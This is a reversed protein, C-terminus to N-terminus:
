NPRPPGQAQFTAETDLVQRLLRGLPELFERFRREDEGSFAGGDRKNLVQAVAFVTGEGDRVPLCLLSRTRYGTRRDVSAQFLPSQYADALNVTEGTRAVHGAIGTDVGIEISLMSTGDAQAVRSRLKRAPWDVLFLTVRDAALTQGARFAAAVLVRDLLSTALHGRATDMTRRLQVLEETSEAMFQFLQADDLAAIERTLDRARSARALGELAGSAQLSAARALSVLRGDELALHRDAIDLIRHDHTVLLIACGGRRALRQLLDVVERGTVRDLASTPEDALILRPRVVLARAIAVRQRQGGSLRSPIKDAQDSLGVAELEQLARRRAEAAAVPGAWSLAQVRRLAGALTLITTKGSGSPGTLIVIEGPLLGLSVGHLVDKRAPGIGFAHRGDHLTLLPEGNM